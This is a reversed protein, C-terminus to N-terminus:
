IMNYLVKMVNNHLVQYDLTIHVIDLCYKREM